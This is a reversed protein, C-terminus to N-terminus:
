TLHTFIPDHIGLVPKTPPPASLPLEPEIDNWEFLCHPYFSPKFKETKAM